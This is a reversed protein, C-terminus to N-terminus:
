INHSDFGPINLYPSFFQHLYIWSGVFRIQNQLQVILIQYNLKLANFHPSSKELLACEQTAIVSWCLSLPLSTLKDTKLVSSSEFVTSYLYLLSFEKLYSTMPSFLKLLLSIILLTSVLSLFLSIGELLSTINNANTGKLLFPLFM